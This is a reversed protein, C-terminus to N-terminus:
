QSLSLFCKYLNLTSDSIFVLGFTKLNEHNPYEKTFLIYHLNAQQILVPM